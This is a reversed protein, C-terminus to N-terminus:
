LGDIHKKAQASSSYSKKKKKRPTFDIPSIVLSGDVIEYHLMDGEKSEWEERVEQPLTVRNDAIIKLIGETKVSM